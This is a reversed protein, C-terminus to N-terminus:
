RCDGCEYRRLGHPCITEDLEETELLVDEALVYGGDVKRILGKNILGSKGFLVVRVPTSDPYVRSYPQLGFKDPHIIWCAITLAGISFPAPIGRAAQLVIEKTTGVCGESYNNWFEKVLM